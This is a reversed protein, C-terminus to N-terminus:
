VYVSLITAWIAVNSVKKFLLQGEDLVGLKRKAELYPNM